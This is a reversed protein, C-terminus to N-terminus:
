LHHLLPPCTPPYFFSNSSIHHNFLLSLFQSTMFKQVQKHLSQMEVQSSVSAAALVALNPQNVLFVYETLFLMSKKELSQKENDNRKAFSLWNM